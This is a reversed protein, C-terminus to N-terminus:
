WRRQSRRRAALGLAPLLLWLLSTGISADPTEAIHCGDHGDAKGHSDVTTDITVTNNAVIADSPSDVRATNRLMGEDRCGEHSDCVVQLRVRLKDGPQLDDIACHVV